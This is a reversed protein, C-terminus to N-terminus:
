TLEQGRAPQISRALRALYQGGLILVLCYLAANSISKIPAPNKVTFIVLPMFFASLRWALTHARDYPLVLALGMLWTLYWEQNSTDVLIFYLVTAALCAEAIGQFTDRRFRDTFALLMIGYLAIYALRLLVGVNQYSADFPPVAFLHPLAYLTLVDIFDYVSNRYVSVSSITVNSFAKLAEPYLLYSLVIAAAFGATLMAADAVNRAISGGSERRQVLAALGFVPFFVLPFYKIGFAAGLAVGAWLWARRTVALMALLVFLNMWHDNHACTLVSFCILPNAAYSFLAVRRFPVPALRWVLASCGGHLALAAAKHLALAVKENGDSLGSFLAALKQFLPGYSTTGSLFGPFINSFMEDQAYGPVHTASTLYPSFGFHSEVWGTGIYFFVDPSVWPMGFAFILSVLISWTAISRESMASPSKVLKGVLTLYLCGVLFFGLMHLGRGSVVWGASVARNPSEFLGLFYDFEHEILMLPSQWWLRASVAVLLLVAVAYAALLVPLERDSESNM